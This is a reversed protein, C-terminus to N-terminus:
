GCLARLLDNRSVIGAVKGGSLIPIRNIGKDVMTQALEEVSTDPTATIVKRSMCDKVKLSFGEDISKQLMEEPITYLGYLSMRPVASKRKGKDMLDAESIIGTLVGAGNVVPLGSIKNWAMLEAAERLTAEESITKVKKTMIDAAKISLM